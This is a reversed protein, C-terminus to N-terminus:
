LSHKIRGPVCEPERTSEDREPERAAFVTSDSVLDLVFGVVSAYGKARQDTGRM